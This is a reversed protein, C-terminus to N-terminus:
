RMHSNISLSMLTEHRRRLTAVSLELPASDRMDPIRQRCAQTRPFRRKDHPRAFSRTNKVHIEKPTQGQTMTAGSFLYWPHNASTWSRRERERLFVIVSIIKFVRKTPRMLLPNQTRYDVSVRCYSASLYKDSAEISYCYYRFYLLCFILSSHSNSSHSNSLAQECEHSVTVVYWKTLNAWNLNRTM